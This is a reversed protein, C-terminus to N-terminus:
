LSQSLKIMEMFDEFNHMSKFHQKLFESDLEWWKAKQLVEIQEQNFRYRIIKAPVGGVIAYPPVDKTVVACAGVIAGNGINIGDFVTVRSGLWVDHGIKIDAFESFYDDNSFTTGCQELTSFFTPHTSIFDNSPHTGLGIRCEPGVSCFSGLNTNSINTGSAVYTFDGFTVNLIICDNYIFNYM